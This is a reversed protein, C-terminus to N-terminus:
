SEGDAHQRSAVLAAEVIKQYGTCRCINGSLYDRVEGESPTPCDRLLATVSMVFGPTCYGCQVAGCELFADQVPSLGSDGAVGEVTEVSSGDLTGALLCCAHASKGDVIVTCAGCYGVGCGIKTGTLGLRRALVEALTDDSRCEVSRQEGNVVLEVSHLQDSM